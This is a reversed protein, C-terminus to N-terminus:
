NSILDITLFYNMVLLSVLKQIGIVPKRSSLASIKHMIEKPTFRLWMIQLNFM